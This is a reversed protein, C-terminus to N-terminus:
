KKVRVAHIFGGSSLLFFGLALYPHGLLLLTWGMILNIVGFINAELKTM